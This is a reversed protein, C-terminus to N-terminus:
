VFGNFYFYGLKCDFHPSHMTIDHKQPPLSEGTLVTSGGEARVASYRQPQMIAHRKVYKM